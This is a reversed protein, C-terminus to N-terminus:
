SLFLFFSFFFFNQAVSCLFLAIASNFFTSHHCVDACYYCSLYPFFTEWQPLQFFSKLKMKLGYSRCFSKLTNLDVLTFTEQPYCFCLINVGSVDASIQLQQTLNRLIHKRRYSVFMIFIVVWLLNKNKNEVSSPASVCVLRKHPSLVRLSSLSSWQLYNWLLSLRQKRHATSWLTLYSMFAYKFPETLGVPTSFALASALNRTHSCGQSGTLM